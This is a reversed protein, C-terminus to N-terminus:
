ALTRMLAKISRKEIAHPVTLHNSEGVDDTAMLRGVQLLIALGNQGAVALRQGGHFGAARGQRRAHQGTTRGAVLFAEHRMGTPMATARMALMVLALLPQFALELALDRGVIEQEGEGYRRFEPIQGPAMLAEEICQQEFAGPRRDAGEALVVFLQMAPGARHAHQVGMRAAEIVVRVQMQRHGGRRQIWLSPAPPGLLAAFTMAIQEVVAGQGLHKAGLQQRCEAPFAQFQGGTVRLFPDDIAFADAVTFLGQDIETAIEIPADNLLLVDQGTVLILDAKAVAVALGPLHRHARYAACGEQPQDQLVDQGLAEPSRAVEAKQM